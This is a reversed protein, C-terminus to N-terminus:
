CFLMSFYSSNEVQMLSQTLLQQSMARQAVFSHKPIFECCWVVECWDVIEMSTRVIVWSSKSTFDGKPSGMWIVKDEDENQLRDIGNLAGWVLRLDHSVDPDLCWEGGRLM